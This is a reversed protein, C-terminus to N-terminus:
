SDLWEKVKGDDTPSHCDSVWPSTAADDEGASRIENAHAEPRLIDGKADLGAAKM